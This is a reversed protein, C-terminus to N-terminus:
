RPGPKPREHPRENGDVVLAADRHEHEDREVGLREHVRRECAGLREFHRARHVARDGLVEASTSEDFTRVDVVLSRDEGREHRGETLVHEVAAHV